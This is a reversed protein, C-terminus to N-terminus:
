TAVTDEHCRGAFPVDGTAIWEVVSPSQTVPSLIAGNTLM